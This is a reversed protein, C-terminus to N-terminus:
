SFVNLIAKFGKTEKEVMHQSHLDALECDKVCSLVELMNPTLWWRRDELVRGILSFTSESSVTFAPVILVNKALISLM